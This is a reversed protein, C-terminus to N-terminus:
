YAEIESFFDPGRLSGSHRVKEVVFDGSVWDSVIRIRRGPRLGPQLLSRAVVGPRRIGDGAGSDVHRRPIGVLGSDPGLVVVPATTGKGAPYVQVAGDQVSWRHGNSACVEDLLSSAKTLTSIGQKLAGPVDAVSGRALGMAGLIEDVVGATPTDGARAISIVQRRLAIGGDSAVIRTLVDAGERDSSVEDIDGAFLLAVTSPYGAFLRVSAGSDSILRRSDASLNYVGIEGKNPESGATQEIAFTVDLGEWRRGVGGATVELVIRRDFLASM